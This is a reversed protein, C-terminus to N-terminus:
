TKLLVWVPLLFGPFGWYKAQRGVFYFGKGTFKGYRCLVRLLGPQVPGLDMRSM